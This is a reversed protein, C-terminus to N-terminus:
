IETGIRVASIKELSFPLLSTFPRVQRDTDDSKL